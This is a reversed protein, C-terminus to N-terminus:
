LPESPMRFRIFSWKDKYTSQILHILLLGAHCQHARAIAGDLVTPGVVQYGRQRLADLLHQLHASEVVVHEHM